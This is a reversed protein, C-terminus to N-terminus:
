TWWPYAAQKMRGMCLKRGYRLRGNEGTTQIEEVRGSPTRIQVKIGSHNSEGSLLATGVIIGTGHPICGTCILALAATAIAPLLARQMQSRLRTLFLTTM